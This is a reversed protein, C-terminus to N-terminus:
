DVKGKCSFKTFKEGVKSTAVGLSGGLGAGAVAGAVAASAFAGIVAGLAAGVAGCIITSQKVKQLSDVLGFLYYMLDKFYGSNPQLDPAPNISGIHNPLNEDLQNMGGTLATPQYDYESIKTDRQQALLVEAVKQICNYVFPKGAKELETKLASYIKPCSFIIIIIDTFSMDLDDKSDYFDQMVEEDTIPSDVARNEAYKCIKKLARCLKETSKAADMLKAAYPSNKIQPWLCPMISQAISMFGDCYRQITTSEQQLVAINDNDALSYVSDEGKHENSDM